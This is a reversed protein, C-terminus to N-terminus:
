ESISRYKIRAVVSTVREFKSKPTALHYFTIRKEQFLM